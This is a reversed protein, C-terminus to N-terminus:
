VKFTTVSSTIKFEALTVEVKVAGLVPTAQVTPTISDQASTSRTASLAVNHGQTSFIGLSVVVILALLLVLTSMVFRPSLGTRKKPTPSMDDLNKM